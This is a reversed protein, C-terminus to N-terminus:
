YIYIDIVSSNFLSISSSESEIASDTLSQDAFHKYEILQNILM